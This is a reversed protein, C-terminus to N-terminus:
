LSQQSLWQELEPWWTENVDIDDPVSSSHDQRLRRDNPVTTVAGWYPRVSVSKPIIPNEFLIDTNGDVVENGVRVWAHAWSFIKKGESFYTAEGVVAHAPYGLKTLARALLLAFQACMESRGALNEDVLMAVRDLLKGRLAKDALSSSDVLTVSPAPRANSRKQARISEVISRFENPMHGLFEEVTANVAPSIERM